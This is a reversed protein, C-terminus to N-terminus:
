VGCAQDPRPECLSVFSSLLIPASKSRSPINANCDPNTWLNNQHRIGGLVWLRQSNELQSFIGPRAYMPTYFPYM